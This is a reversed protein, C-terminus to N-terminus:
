SNIRNEWGELFIGEAPNAAVIGQARHVMAAQYSVLLMPDAANVAALIMPGFNGDQTVDLVEQLIKVAESVGFLVGMDFLKDLIAQNEIQTYYPKVYNALYYATAQSVTLTQIPINPLDRQEIGMNTAGGPDAPNDTYGGEHQLTKSISINPDSM